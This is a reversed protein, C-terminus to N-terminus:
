ILREHEGKQINNKGRAHEESSAALIYILFIVIMLTM